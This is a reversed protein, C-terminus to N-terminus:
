AALKEISVADWGRKEPDISIKLNLAGASSIETMQYSYIIERVRDRIEDVFADGSTGCIAAVLRTYQREHENQQDDYSNASADDSFWDIGNLMMGPVLGSHGKAVIIKPEWTYGAETFFFGAIPHALTVEQGDATACVFKLALNDVESDLHSEIDTEALTTELDDDNLQAVCKGGDTEQADALRIVAEDEGKTAILEIATVAGYKTAPYARALDDSNFLRTNAFPASEISSLLTQLLSASNNNIVYDTIAFADGVPVACDRGKLEDAMSIFRQGDIAAVVVRPAPISPYTARLPDTISLGNAMEGRRLLSAYAETVMERVTRLGDNEILAQRQPLQLKLNTTDHVDILILNYIFGDVVNGRDDFAAIKESPPIGAKLGHTVVKGFFNIQTDTGRDRDSRVVAVTVGHATIKEHPCNGILAAMFDKPQQTTTTRDFGVLKAKLASYRAAKLITHAITSLAKGALFGTIRISLGKRYRPLKRLTATDAGTFAAKPVSLAWNRSNVEVNFNALSFFGLGAANEATEIADDNNSDGLSLLVGANKASLGKGDDSIVLDPGDATFKITRAGARRANQIVEDLITADDNTFYRDANQLLKRGLTASIKTISTM